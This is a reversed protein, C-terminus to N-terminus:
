ELDVVAELQNENEIEEEKDDDSKKSEDDSNTKKIKKLDRFDEEEYESKDANEKESEAEKEKDNVKQNNQSELAMDNTLIIKKKRGRKKLIKPPENEDKKV